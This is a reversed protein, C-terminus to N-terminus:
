YITTKTTAEEQQQRSNDWVRYLSSKFILRAHSTWDNKWWQPLWGQAGVSFRLSTSRRLIQNHRWEKTMRWRSWLRKDPKLKSNETNLAVLNVGLGLLFTLVLKLCVRGYRKNFAQIQSYLYGWPDIINDPILKTLLVTLVLLHLALSTEGRSILLVIQNPTLRPLFQKM